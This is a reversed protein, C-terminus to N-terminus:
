LTATANRLLVFFSGWDTLGVRDRPHNQTRPELKKDMSTVTERHYLLVYCLTKQHTSEGTSPAAKQESGLHSCRRRTHPICPTAVALAETLISQAV